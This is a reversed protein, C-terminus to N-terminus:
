PIIIYLYVEQQGVASNDIINLSSDAWVCDGPKYPGKGKLFAVNGASADIARIKTQKYVSITDKAQQLETELSKVVHYVNYFAYSCALIAIVMVVILGILLKDTLDRKTQM